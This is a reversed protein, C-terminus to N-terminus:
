PREPLQSPVFVEGSHWKEDPEPSLWGFFFRVVSHLSKQLVDHDRNQGGSEELQRVSVLIRVRYRGAADILGMRTVPIWPLRHVARYFAEASKFQEKVAGHRWEYSENWVDFRFYFTDVVASLETGDEMEMRMQLSIVGRAGHELQRKLSEDTFNQLTVDCYVQDAKRYVDVKEVAGQGFILVYTLFGLM